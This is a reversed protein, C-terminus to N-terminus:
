AEDSEEKIPCLIAAASSIIVTLVVIKIGSSLSSLLPILEISFSLIMACIVALLVARKRKAAPVVIAIFMGFLGVSLASVVRAPLINGIVVGLLTGFCWGPMAVSMMGFYFSPNVKGEEGISSAFLEDTVAISMLLRHPLKAKDSLKQSLSCSMLLYRANAIFETLAIEIYSGSAAIVAFAAYEGASANLLLSTLAAQFASLGANKATIGLSFAVAFYGLCIPIGIKIGRLFDSKMIKERM